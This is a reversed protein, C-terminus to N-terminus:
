RDSSLDAAPPPRLLEVLVLLLLLATCCLWLGGSVALVPVLGATSRAPLWLLLDGLLGVGAGLALLGLLRRSWRTLLALLMAIATVSGMGLAHTHASAVVIAADTPAVDRGLAVGRVDDWYELPLRRGIGDGATAQRAHCGLCRRHLIEAPAADGAALADYEEALRDSRLWALLAQREPQTLDDPHGRELATQLPPPTRIGHYAGVLDDMTFGPREDRGQHHQWLHTVSIGLGYLLVLVLCVLGLRFPLGLAVLCPGPAPATM